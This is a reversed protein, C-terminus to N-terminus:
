LSLIVTFPASKVVGTPTTISRCVDGAGYQTQAYIYICDYLIYTCHQTHCIEISQVPWLIILAILYLTYQECLFQAGAHDWKKAHINSYM